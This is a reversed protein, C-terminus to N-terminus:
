RILMADGYSFFRYRRQVAERYASLIHDRGAFAAVLVLLSSHPTHFNTLMQSVARFRYGPIIYLGSSGEGAQVRGDRWASEIARVSTTGVALVPREEELARNVADATAAPVAYREDHLRHAEVEETRIPQFTDLGVHLTVPVIQVGTRRLGELLADTLHLGATPAAASGFHRAYVTQYREADSPTDERHIYPPLPVRGHRELYEDDIRPAFAVLRVEERAGVIVAEVGGPLRYRRGRGQKRAKSLLAEWVGARVERLLLIEVRASTDAAEAFLRAKRVRSDNLVMVTGEQLLAPLDSIRRDSLLGSTRELVM